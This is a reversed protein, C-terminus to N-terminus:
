ESVKHKETLLSMFDDDHSQHDQRNLNLYQGTEALDLERPLTTLLTDVIALTWTLNSSDLPEELVDRLDGLLIYELTRWDNLLRSRDVVSACM